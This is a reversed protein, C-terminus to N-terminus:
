RVIGVKLFPKMQDGANEALVSLTSVALVREEAVSSSVKAQMVVHENLYLSSFVVILVSKRCGSRRFFCQHVSCLVNEQSNGPTKSARTQRCHAPLYTLACSLPKIKVGIHFPLYRYNFSAAGKSPAMM